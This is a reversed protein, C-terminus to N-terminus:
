RNSIVYILSESLDTIPNKQFDGFKDITKYDLLAFVGELEKPFFYRFRVTFVMTNKVACGELKDVKTIQDMVQDLFDYKYTYEVFFEGEENKVLKKDDVQLNSDTSRPNFFPSFIDFVIKADKVMFGKLRKFLLLHGEDKIHNLFAYPMLILDFKKRFDYSLIDGLIIEAKLGADKLRRNCEAIMSPNEDIGTINKDPHKKLFEILLRGSGSGCYLINKAKSVFSSYFATEKNGKMVIDYIEPFDYVSKSEEKM